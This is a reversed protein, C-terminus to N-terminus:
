PRSVARRQVALHALFASIHKEDLKSPHRRDHFYIFRKIWEVYAQETRTRYHKCRIVDCVQDMPHPKSPETDDTNHTSTKPAQREIKLPVEM